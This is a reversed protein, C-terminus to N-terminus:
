FNGLYWTPSNAIMLGRNILERRMDHVRNEWYLHGAPRQSLDIPKLENEMLQRVTRLVESTIASGGLQILAKLIPLAYSTRPLPTDSPEASHERSSTDLTPSQPSKQVDMDCLHELGANSIEWIGWPSDDKMLGKNILERRM